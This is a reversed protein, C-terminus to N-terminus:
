AVSFRHYQSQRLFRSHVDPLEEKLAKADIRSTPVLKNRVKFVDVTIEDDEGMVGTIAAKLQEMKAEAEEKIQQFERFERVALLLEIQSM